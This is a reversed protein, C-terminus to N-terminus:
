HNNAWIHEVLDNRIAQHAKQYGLSHLRQKRKQFQPPARQHYIIPEPDNENSEWNIVAHGEVEIIMNHLIVCAHMINGLLPIFSTRPPGRIVGWRAQLAGFAKEVDKRASEQRKKILKIKLNNEPPYTFEKSTKGM